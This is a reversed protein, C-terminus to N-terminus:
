MRLLPGTGEGLLPPAFAAIATIRTLSYAPLALDDMEAATVSVGLRSSLPRPWGGRLGNTVLLGPAGWIQDCRGASLLGRLSVREEREGLNLLFLETGPGRFVWGYLAPYPPDGKRDRILVPDSFTLEQAETRGRAARSLEVFMLGCASFGYRTTAPHRPFQAAAFGKESLFIDGHGADEIATYHLAHRIRPSQLFELSLTALYLAHAWSGAASMRDAVNYETVDIEPGPPIGALDKAAFAPWARFPQALMDAANDAGVAVGRALNTPQYLHLAVADANRCASFLGPNWFRDRPKPYAAVGVARGVVAIPPCNWGEAAARRRIADIWAAATEGYAVGAGNPLGARPANPYVDLYGRQGSLYYENGLEILGIALHAQAAASLLRLQYDLNPSSPGFKAPSSALPDTLVNLVLDASAAPAAMALERAFEALPTPYANRRPSFGADYNSLFTGSRWDWYNSGTGSPLRLMAPNLERFAQPFGGGSRWDFGGRATGNVGYFDPPLSRRSAGDLGVLHQAGAGPALLALAGAGARM